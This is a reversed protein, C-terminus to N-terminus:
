CSFYVNNLLFEWIRAQVHIIKFFKLHSHHNLLCCKSLYWEMKSSLGTIMSIYTAGAFAFCSLRASPHLVLHDRRPAKSQQSWLIRHARFTSQWRYLLCQRIQVHVAEWDIGLGFSSQAPKLILCLIIYPCHIYLAWGACNEFWHLRRFWLSM